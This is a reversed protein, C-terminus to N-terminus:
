TASMKTRFTLTFQSKPVGDEHVQCDVTGADDHDTATLDIHAEGDAGVDITATYSRVAVGDEILVLITEGSIDKRTKMAADSWFVLEVRHATNTFLPKPVVTVGIVM